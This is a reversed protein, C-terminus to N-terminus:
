CNLLRKYEAHKAARLAHRCCCTRDKVESQRVALWPQAPGHAQRALHLLYCTAPLLADLRFLLSCLDPPCRRLGPLGRRSACAANRAAVPPPRYKLYRGGVLYM